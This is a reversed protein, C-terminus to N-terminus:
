TKEKGDSHSIVKKSKLRYRDSNMGSKLQYGM